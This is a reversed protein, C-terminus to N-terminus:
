LFLYYFSRFLREIINFCYKVKISTRFQEILIKM